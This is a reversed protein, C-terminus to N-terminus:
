NNTGNTKRGRDGTGMDTASTSIDKTSVTQGLGDLLGLLTGNASMFYQGHLGGADDSDGPKRGFNM